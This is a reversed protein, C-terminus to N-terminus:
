LLEPLTNNTPRYKKYNKERVWLVVGQELTVHLALLHLHYQFFFSMPSDLLTRVGDM